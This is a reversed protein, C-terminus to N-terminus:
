LSIDLVESTVVLLIHAEVVVTVVEIYGTLKLNSEGNKKKALNILTLSLKTVIM